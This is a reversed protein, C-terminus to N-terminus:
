HNRIGDKVKGKLADLLRDYVILGPAVLLFNKTFRLDSPNELKNIIQWIMLAQLVWTKGTGTAMKLCYKPHNYKSQSIHSLLSDKVLADPALAKYLDKLSNKGLVEHAYITNLISQRQGTHFNLGRRLDVFDQLFWFRLLSATAETVMEYIDAVGDELGICSENVKVTLAESLPLYDKKM